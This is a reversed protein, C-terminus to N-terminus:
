GGRRMGGRGGGDCPMRRLRRGPGRCGCRADVCWCLVGPFVRRGPIICVQVLHGVVGCLRWATACSAAGGRLFAKAAGLGPDSRLPHPTKATHVSISLKGAIEPETRNAQNAYGPPPIGSIGQCPSSGPGTRPCGNLRSVVIRDGAAALRCVAGGLAKWARQRLFAPALEATLAKQHGAPPPSGLAGM